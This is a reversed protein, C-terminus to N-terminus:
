LRQFHRNKYETFAKEGRQVTGPWRSIAYTFLIDFHNEPNQFLGLAEQGNVATAVELPLEYKNILFTICDVDLVSDDVVLIQYM